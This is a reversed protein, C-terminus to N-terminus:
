VWSSSLSQHDALSPFSTENYNDKPWNEVREDSSLACNWDAIQMSRVEGKSDFFRAIFSECMDAWHTRNFKFYFTKLTITNVTTSRYQSMHFIVHLLFFHSYKIKILLFLNAQSIYEQQHWCFLFISESASGCYTFV